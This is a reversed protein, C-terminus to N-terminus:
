EDRMSMLFEVEMDFAKRADDISGPYMHFIHWMRDFRRYITPVGAAELAQAYAEGEGVLEDYEATFVLAPPLGSLDDSELPVAYPNTADAPTALYQTWWWERGSPPTVEPDHGKDPWDPHLAPCALVQRSIKPGGRDRAMMSVVTSLNAGASDGGVGIHRSDVGIAGGQEAVWRVAAYADEAGQPFKHEPALRYDVNVVVFGTAKAMRRSQGDYTEIGGFVFGGGHFQVVVPRLGPDEFDRYIRIPIPGNPGDIQRDEVRAVEPGNERWTNLFRERLVDLSAGEPAPGVSAARKEIVEEVQPHLGV